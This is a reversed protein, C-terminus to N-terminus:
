LTSLIGLIQNLLAAIANLPGGGGTDDFNM